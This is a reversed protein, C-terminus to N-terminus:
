LLAKQVVPTNRHNLDHSKLSLASSGHPKRGRGAGHRRSFTHTPSMSSSAPAPSQTSAAAGPSSPCVQQWAVCVALSRRLIHGGTLRTRPNSCTTLLSLRCLELLRQKHPSDHSHHGRSNQSMTARKPDLHFWHYAALSTEVKKVHLLGHSKRLVWTQAPGTWLWTHVSRCRPLM